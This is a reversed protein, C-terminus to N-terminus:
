VASAYSKISEGDKEKGTTESFFFIYWVNVHLAQKVLHECVEFSTKLEGKPKQFHPWIRHKMYLISSRLSMLLELFDCGHLLEPNRTM